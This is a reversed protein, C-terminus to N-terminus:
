TKSWLDVSSPYSGPSSIPHTIALSSLVFHWLRELLTLSPPLIKFLSIIMWVWETWWLADRHRWSRAGLLHTSSESVHEVQQGSLLTRRWWEAPLLNVTTLWRARRSHRVLLQKFCGELSVAGARNNNPRYSDLAARHTLKPGDACSTLWSRSSLYLSLDQSFWEHAAAWCKKHLGSSKCLQFVYM